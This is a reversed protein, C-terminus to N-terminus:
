KSIREYMEARPNIKKWKKEDAGKLPRHFLIVFDYKADVSDLNEIDPTSSIFFKTPYISSPEYNKKLAGYEFLYRISCYESKSVLINKYKRLNNEKMPEYLHTFPKYIFWKNLPTIRIGFTLIILSVTLIQLKSILNQPVRMQWILLVISASACISLLFLTHLSITWRSTFNYSYYGFLSIVIFIVNVGMLFLFYYDFKKGIEAFKNRVYVYFMIFGLLFILPGFFKIEFVYSVGYKLTMRNIYAPPKASPNQYRLTVFYILGTSILLPLSYFVIFKIKSTIRFGNKYFVNIIFLLSVVFAPVIMSYRSSVLIALICGYVLSSVITIQRETKQIFWICFAVGLCEMSYARVEFAYQIILPSFAPVLGFILSFTEHKTWQYIIKVYLVVTLVFFLFPLTRLWQHSNSVKSWFHLIISFGGPDLNYKQNQIIVDNLDGNQQLPESFHNLGKSIWFQGSEDLWLNPNDLNLILFSFVVFYLCWILIRKNLYKM